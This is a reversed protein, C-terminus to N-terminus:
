PKAGKRKDIAAQIRNRFDDYSEGGRAFMGLERGKADTASTSKKWAWDNDANPKAPKPAPPNLLEVVIPRLYPVQFPEDGLSEKARAVAALLLTDTVREDQAWTVAVDPHFATVRKVGAGTLLTAIAVARMGPDVPMTKPRPPLRDDDGDDGRERGSDSAGGSLAKSTLQGQRQGEGQGKSPDFLPVDPLEDLSLPPTDGPVDFGTGQSLPTIDRPVPLPQGVPCGAAFWSDFEPFPVNAGPHRTNHKKIRSCETALRQRLKAMWADNAKESVVQHYWRGDSCLVFGRMAGGKVKKWHPDVRGRSLYGAANAIWNDSDPISGAPVQHWAAAWLLVAAWNEEPTQESAMDSDRLRAVDLPMFPFDQLNCDVPTLPPPLSTSTMM